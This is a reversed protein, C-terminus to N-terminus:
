TVTGGPGAIAYTTHGPNVRDRSKRLTMKGVATKGKEEQREETQRAM